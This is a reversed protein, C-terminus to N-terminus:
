SADPSDPDGMPGHLPDPDPFLALRDLDAEISPWELRGNMDGLRAHLWAEFRAAYTGPAANGQLRTLLAEIRRMDAQMGLLASLYEARKAERAARQRFLDKLRQKEQVDRKWCEHEERQLKKAVLQTELGESM